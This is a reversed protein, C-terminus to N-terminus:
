PLGTRVRRLTTRRLGGRLGSRVDNHLAMRVHLLAGAPDAVGVDVVAQAVEEPIVVVLRLSADQLQTHLVTVDDRVVPKRGPDLGPAPWQRQMRLRARLRDDVPTVESGAGAECRSRGRLRGPDVAERSEVCRDVLDPWVELSPHATM